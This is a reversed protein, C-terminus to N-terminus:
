RRATMVVLPPLARRCDTVAWVAAKVADAAATSVMRPGDAGPMTRASLVQGTLHEGGDHRFVDESLLRQLEQVAAGTRGQGKRARVGALAPDDLLSAGVIATRRFGSEKLVGPVESLDALGAVSVVVQDGTKWALAVSVGDGFWSEVAAADPPGDPVEEVLAAWDDASLVPDGRGRAAARLQWVNLYQALFGQMPDPDDAQPDTEGALAAAYKAAIM